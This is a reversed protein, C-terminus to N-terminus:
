WVVPVGYRALVPDRSVIVMNEILAQAVLLRDWPDKHLAPLRGARSAHPAEIPVWDFVLDARLDDLDEPLRALEPLVNRKYDIEYASAASVFRDNAADEILARAKSSLRRSALASWVLAHTDLLLRM